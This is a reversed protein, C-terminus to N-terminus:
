KSSLHAVLLQELEQWQSGGYQRSVTKLETQFAVKASFATNESTKAADAFEWLEAPSALLGEKLSQKYYELKDRKLRYDSDAAKHTQHAILLSKVSALFSVLVKEQELALAANARDIKNQTEDHFLPIKVILQGNFGQSDTTLNGTENATTTNNRLNYTFRVESTWNHSDRSIKLESHRSNISASNNIVIALAEDIPEAAIDEVLFFSLLFLLALLIL